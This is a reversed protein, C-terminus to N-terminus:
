DNSTVKKLNEIKLISAKSDTLSPYIELDFRWNKQAAEIEKEVDKGKLFLGMSNEKMLPFAYTLLLPLPALARATIVDFLLSNALSEIRSQLITVKSKTERSVNELFICKKFDSEVLTVTLDEPRLIALVLGPFGAGSGLDILSIPNLPLHSLLQYSDLFHREWAVSVTSNSVLNLKKQWQELLGQYVKLRDLTERSVNM